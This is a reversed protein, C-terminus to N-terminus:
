AFNREIFQFINFDRIRKNKLTYLIKPKLYYSTFNKQVTFDKNFFLQYIDICLNKYFYEWTLDNYNKNNKINMFIDFFYSWFNSPKSKGRAKNTIRITAKIKSNSFINLLFSKYNPSLSICLDYNNNRVIRLLSIDKFFSIKRDNVYINNIEHKIQSAYLFGSKGCILDIKNIKKKFINKLHNIILTSSILDGIRDNRIILINM